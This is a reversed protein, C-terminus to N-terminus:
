EYYLALTKSAIMDVLIGYKYTHAPPEDRYHRAFHKSGLFYTGQQDFVLEEGDFLIFDVGYTPKLKQMHHALEMFLAVGSAGDNAGIFVGRRAAPSIERDPFPRTDYHACLLIREKSEPHWSIIINNMRVPQGTLPHPADFPQLKVECDFKTFHDTILKQQKEMGASGSPRSGIDCVQTLYKFTRAADLPNPMAAQQPPKAPPAWAMLCAATLATVVVCASFGRFYSGWDHRPPLQDDAAESVFM